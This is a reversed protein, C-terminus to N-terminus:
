VKELNAFASPLLLETRWLMFRQSPSNALKSEFPSTCEAGNKININNRSGCDEVIDGAIHRPCVPM